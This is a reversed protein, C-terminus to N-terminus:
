IASNPFRDDLPRSREGRERRTKEEQKHATLDHILAFCAPRGAFSMSRWTIGVNIAAGDKRKLDWNGPAAQDNAASLLANRFALLDGAPKLDAITMRLFEDRSYGFTALAMGNVELFRLAQTDIIWMPYPNADLIDRYRAEEREHIWKEAKKRETIDRVIKSAGIINGAANRIPSVTVSVDILRGDKHLRVTEYHDIRQGAAIRALIHNEEDQRDQPIVRRTPQGIMEAESYGFLRAAGENWSTVTGSLTKGVIADSSSAVIAALFASADEARLKHPLFRRLKSRFSIGGPKKVPM